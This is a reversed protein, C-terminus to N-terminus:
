SQTLPLIVTFVSGKDPESEVSIEAKTIDIVRKVLALGLGNGSTSHSTDGQYFKEFIHKGTKENMGCGTDKISVVAKNNKKEITVSLLGKQKNFKIANSLLNSWVISLLEKDASIVLEEDFDTHIDLQKEEWKEEFMIMCECFHESLNFEEVTPVILQNELKNLRLINTILETLNKAALSLTNTYDQREEETIDPNQLLTSYNQIVSLPTKLEHSVNAIFDTKLTEITSLEQAMKNFDEIIVDFENKIKPSSTEKIRASFDGHTIRHTADLIKRVPIEVTIKKRIFDSISFFVCISLINFLTILARRSLIDGPINIAYDTSGFFLFFSCTVVFAAFAFFWVFRRISFLSNKIRKDKKPRQSNM